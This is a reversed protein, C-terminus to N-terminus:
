YYQSSNTSCGTLTRWDSYPLIGLRQCERAYATLSSCYCKKSPCECMDRLCSKIYSDPHLQEHCASFMRSKLPKCLKERMKRYRFNSCSSGTVPESRQCAKRSGVQWSTAFSTEDFAMRGSRTKFDDKPNSNYNGCLGCLRNKYSSPVSVELFSNGDWVVKIGLNTQVLVSYATKTVNVFYNEFPLPVREGNVKVRMKDGLNVKLKGMRISVTKTWASTKTSRGDNTVRIFFSQDQCDGTLQYKCLGQFSFSRGDFTKYHPDGYVTCVGDEEICKHCCSGPEKQLTMNQPCRANSQHCQEIACKVEGRFCSCTKCESEQWTEGNRFVKDGVFCVTRNEYFSQCQPCRSDSTPYHQRDKPCNLPPCTDRACISTSNMCLCYTDKDYKVTAGAKQVSTGLLCSKGPPPLLERAGNCRPCCAGEDLITMSPSCQLVPCANKSCTMGSNQCTCKVCSDESSKVTGGIAFQLGNLRCDPCRPCCEGPLAPLPNSCPTYCRTNSETIVGAKCTILMCPNIPDRWETGSEYHRGQYFCGRCIKCCGKPDTRNTQMFCDDEPCKNKTCEVQGRQFM